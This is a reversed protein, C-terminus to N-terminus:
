KEDTAPIFLWDLYSRFIDQAIRVHDVGDILPLSCFAPEKRRKGGHAEIPGMKKMKAYM